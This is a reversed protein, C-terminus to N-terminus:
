KCEWLYTPATPTLSEGSSVYGFPKLFADTEDFKHRVIREAVIAPKYKKITEVAGEIVLQEKGEIDIKILVLDHTCPDSDITSVFVKDIIEDSKSDVLFCHEEGQGGNQMIGNGTYNLVAMKRPGVTFRCNNLYANAYLCRFFHGIPEYSFVYDAMCEKAYFVSHTGVNAGVDIYLGKLNLSRIKKLLEVEPFTNTERIQNLQCCKENPFLFDYNKGEFELSQAVM